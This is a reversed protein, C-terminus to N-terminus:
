FREPMNMNNLNKLEHQLYITNGKDDLHAGFQELELLVGSLEKSFHAVRREVRNFASRGPSNTVLFFTDLDYTNFYDVACSITKEYRPNEDLGEDVIVIMVRKEENKSNRFSGKFEPPEQIQKMDTFHNYTNSRLHKASRNRIYTPESYTVADLSFTKAKVQMDGIVSPVLKNQKAIVFDHDSLKIKYKVHMVLPAQKNAPTLRIPVKAKGDESHFAVEGPGLLGGM